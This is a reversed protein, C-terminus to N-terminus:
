QAVTETEDVLWRGDVKALFIRTTYLGGAYTITRKGSADLRTTPLARLDVLWQTPSEPRVSVITDAGGEIRGGRSYIM